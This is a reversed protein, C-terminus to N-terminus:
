RSSRQLFQLFVFVLGLVNSRLSDRGGRILSLRLPLNVELRCETAPSRSQHMSFGRWAHQTWHQQPAQRGLRRNLPYRAACYGFASNPRERQHSSDKKRGEMILHKDRSRVKLACLIERSRSCRETDKESSWRRKKRKTRLPLSTKTNEHQGDTQPVGVM